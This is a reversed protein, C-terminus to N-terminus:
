SQVSIDANSHQQTINPPVRKTEMDVKSLEKTKCAGNNSLRIVQDKNKQRLPLPTNANSGVGKIMHSGTSHRARNCVERASSNVADGYSKRRNLKPSKPRTLPLKKLETKPPPGDYYFSPVPKAKIVLNKRMQKLAAEQEEKLRAEYQSKEEQLARNKEELKLYFERRKEARQSSRFTPASGLTVKSRATRMSMASSAVSWNDEDDYNKLPKISSFPSHMINAHSNKSSYPSHMINANPSLNLGTALAETDPAIHTSYSEHKETVLDSPRIVSHDTLEKRAAPSSLKEDDSMKLVEHKENKLDPLDTNGNTAKSSLVDKKEHCNEVFSNVETCEKVVPDKAQVKPAAIKPSGNSPTTVTNPKKDAVDIGTVKRGM